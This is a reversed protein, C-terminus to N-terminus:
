NPFTLPTFLTELTTRVLRDGTYSIIKDIVHQDQDRRAMDFAAAEEGGYLKLDGIDFTRLEGTAMQQCTVDNRYQHKVVFPGSYRHFMKPHVKPGNDFLV